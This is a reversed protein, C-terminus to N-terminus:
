ETSRPFLLTVSGGPELARTYAWRVSAGPLAATIDANVVLPPSPDGTTWSVEPSWDGIGGITIAVYDGARIPSDSDSVTVNNARMLVDGLETGRVLAAAILEGFLRV